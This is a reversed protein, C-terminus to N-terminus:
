RDPPELPSDETEPFERDLPELTAQHEFFSQKPAPEIILNDGEKRIVAAEGAFEFESPICVFQGDGDRLLKVRREM